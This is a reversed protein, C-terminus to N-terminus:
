KQKKQPKPLPPSELQSLQQLVFKTLGVVAVRTIEGSNLGVSLTKLTDKNEKQIDPLNLCEEFEAGAIKAIAQLKDLGPPFLGTEWATVTGRSVGLREAFETQNKAGSRVRCELM